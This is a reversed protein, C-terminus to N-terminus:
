SNMLEAYRRAHHEQGVTFVVRLVRHKALFRCWSEMGPLHEARVVFCQSFQNVRKLYAEEDDDTHLSM